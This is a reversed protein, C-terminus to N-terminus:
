YRLVILRPVNNRILDNGNSRLRKRQKVQLANRYPSRSLTAIHLTHVVVRRDAHVASFGCVKVRVFDIPSGNMCDGVLM